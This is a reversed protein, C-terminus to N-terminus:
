SAEPVLSLRVTLDDILADPSPFPPEGTCIDVIGHIWTHVQTAVFFPDRDDGNAALMAAVRDVLKIFVTLSAERVRDGMTNHTTFLVRYKGPNDRAFDAYAGGMRRFDTFPDDGPVSSSELAVDFAEWCHLVAAELLQEHDDFHRYVATPSVGARAAVARLSVRDISGEEALLDAAADLLDVRLQNGRGRPNRSRPSTVSM